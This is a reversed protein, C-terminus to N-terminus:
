WRFNYDKPTKVSLKLTITKSEGKPLDVNWYIWSPFGDLEKFGATGGDDVTIEIEKTESKPIQEM